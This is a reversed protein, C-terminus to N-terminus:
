LEDEGQLIKGSAHHHSKSDEMNWVVLGWGEGGWGVRYPPAIKLKLEETASRSLHPFFVHANLRLYDLGAKSEESQCRQSIQAELM